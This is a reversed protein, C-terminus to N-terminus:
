GTGLNREHGRASQYLNWAPLMVLDHILKLPVYAFQLHRPLALWGVHHPGPLFLTRIVYNARATARDHLFFLDRSIVKQSPPGESGDRWSEAIRLV